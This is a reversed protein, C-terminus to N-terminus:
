RQRQQEMFLLPMLDYKCMWPKVACLNDWNTMCPNEKRTENKKGSTGKWGKAAMTYCWRRHEAMAMEKLFADQNIFALLEEETGDFTWTYGKRKWVGDKGFYQDLLEEKNGYSKVIMEKIASHSSLERSSERQFFKSKKWCSEVDEIEKEAEKDIAANGCVFDLATYIRNYQKAQDNVQKQIMDDLTLVQQPSEIVFVNGHTDKNQSLYAAMHEDMDMRIGIPIHNEQRQELFQETELMCHIGAETDKMCIAVYTFPSEEAMEKLLYQFKKYRIDMQYFRIRLEGDAQKEHIRIENEATQVYDLSFCNEFIQRKEEINFDVVDITIKNQSHVVGLNLAKLLMQQGLKGFGLILLHTHWDCLPLLVEKKQFYTHLPYKEYIKRAQIEKTSFIELDAMTDADHFDELIKRIGDEECSCYFKTNPNKQKARKQLMYYLSFNKASYDELLIVIDAKRIDIRELCDELEEDTANLGDFEQLIIGKELLKMMDAEELKDSTIVQIRRDKTHEKRIESLLARVNENYGFILINEKCKGWHRKVDWKLLIEFAKYLASITCLPAVLVAAGYAYGVIKIIVSSNSNLVELMDTISIEAQFGFATISNQLMLVMYFLPYEAYDAYFFFGEAMAILFSLVALVFIIRGFRKKNKM